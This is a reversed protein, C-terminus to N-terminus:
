GTLLNGHAQGKADEKQASMAAAPMPADRTVRAWDAGSRGVHEGREEALNATQAGRHLLHRDSAGTHLEREAPELQLLLSDVREAAPEFGHLRILLGRLALYSVVERLRIM